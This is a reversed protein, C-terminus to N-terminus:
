INLVVLKLVNAVLSFDSNFHSSIKEFKKKLLIQHTKCLLVINCCFIGVNNKNNENQCFKACFSFSSPLHDTKPSPTLIVASTHDWVDAYHLQQVHTRLLVSNRIFKMSTDTFRYNTHSLVPVYIRLMAQLRNRGESKQTSFKSTFHLGPPPTSILLTLLARTKFSCQTFEM